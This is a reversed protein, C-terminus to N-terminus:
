ESATASVVSDVTWPLTPCVIGARNESSEGIRAPEVHFTVANEVVFHVKVKSVSGSVRLSYQGGNLFSGPIECTSRLPPRSKGNSWARPIGDRRVRRRDCFAVGVRAPFITM